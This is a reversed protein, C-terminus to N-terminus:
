SRPLEAGKYRGFFLLAGRGHEKGLELEGVLIEHPIRRLGKWDLKAGCVRLPQVFGHKLNSVGPLYTWPM